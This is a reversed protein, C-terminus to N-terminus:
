SKTVLEYAVVVDVDETAHDNWVEVSMYRTPIIPGLNIKLIDPDTEAPVDGEFDWDFNRTFQSYSADDSDTNSNPTATQQTSNIRVKLPLDSGDNGAPRQVYLFVNMDAVSDNGGLVDKVASYMGKGAEVTVFSSAAGSSVAGLFANNHTRTIM